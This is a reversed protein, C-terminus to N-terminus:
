KWEERPIPKWVELEELNGIILGGEEGEASLILMSLPARRPTFHYSLVRECMGNLSNWICVGCGMELSAFRHPHSHSPLESLEKCNGTWNNEFISFLLECSGTTNEINWIKMIPITQPDPTFFSLRSVLRGNKLLLLCGISM